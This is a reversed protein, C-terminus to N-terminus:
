GTREIRVVRRAPPVAPSPRAHCLWRGESGKLELTNGDRLVPGKERLYISVNRLLRVIAAPDDGPGSVTELDPLDWQDLGLTDFLLRNGDGEAPGGMARSAPSPTEDVEFRRVSTFLDISAAPSELDPLREKLTAPDHIVGGDVHLWALGGPLTAIATAVRAFLALRRTPDHILPMSRERNSLSVALPTQAPGGLVQIAVVSRHRAIAGAAGGWHWAQAVVGVVPGAVLPKPVSFGIVKTGEAGPGLGMSAAWAGAGEATEAARVGVQADPLGADALARRLADEAPPEVRDRLVFTIYGPSPKSPAPAM